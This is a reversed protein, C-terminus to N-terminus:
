DIKLDKVIVTSARGWGWGPEVREGTRVAVTVTSNGIGPPVEFKV